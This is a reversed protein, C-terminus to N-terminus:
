KSPNGSWFWWWRETVWDYSCINGVRSERRVEQTRRIITWEVTERMSFINSLVFNLNSTSNNVQRHLLKGNEPCIKRTYFWHRHQKKRMKSIKKELFGNINLTKGECVNKAMFIYYVVNEVKLRIRCIAKLCSINQLLVSEASSGLSSSTTMKQTLPFLKTTYCLLKWM